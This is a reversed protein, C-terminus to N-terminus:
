SRYDLSQFVNDRVGWVIWGSLSLFYNAGPKNTLAVRHAPAESAMSQATQANASLSGIGVLALLTYKLKM